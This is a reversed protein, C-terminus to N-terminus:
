VILDFQAGETGGAATVGSLTAPAAVNFRTSTRARPNGSTSTAMAPVSSIGNVAPITEEGKAPEPRLGSAQGLSGGGLYKATADSGLVGADQAAPSAASAAVAAGAAAAADAATEDALPATPPATAGAQAPAAPNADTAVELLESTATDQVASAQAPAPGIAASAPTAAAPGPSAPHAATAAAATSAAAAAAIRAATATRAAAALAANAADPAAADRGDVAALAQTAADSLSLLYAAFPDGTLFGPQSLL